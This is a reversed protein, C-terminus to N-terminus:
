PGGPAGDYLAHLARLLLPRRRGIPVSDAKWERRAREAVDLWESADDPILEDLARRLLAVLGPARGDSSIAVTLGGKHFRAAGIASGNDPDDVAVVFLRRTEGANKVAANVTKTAAAIVLWAGDLDPEAFAHPRVEEALPALEPHVNPSVVRLRAGAEHLSRAKELAVPGGGVVVVRRGRLDLFVPFSGRKM